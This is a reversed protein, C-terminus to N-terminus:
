LRTIGVCVLNNYYKGANVKSEKGKIDFDIQLLEGTNYGVFPEDKNLYSVFVIPQDRSLAGGDNIIVLFENAVLTENISKQSLLSQYKGIVRHKM